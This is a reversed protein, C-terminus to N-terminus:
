DVFLRGFVTNVGGIYIYLSDQPGTFSGDTEGKVEGQRTELVVTDDTIGAAIVQAMDETQRIGLTGSFVCVSGAGMGVLSVSAFGDHVYGMSLVGPVSMSLAYDMDNCQFTFVDCLGAPDTETAVASDGFICGETGFFLTENEPVEHIGSGDSYFRGIESSAWYLRGGNSIWEFIPDSASGTYVSSPLAYGAVFIGKGAADSKTSNVFDSLGSSDEESVESMGRMSLQKTLQDAMSGQDFGLVRCVERADDLNDDFSEDIYIVLEEVPPSGQMAVAAYGDSGNSEVTYEVTSGDWEASASYSNPHFAYAGLEGAVMLALLAVAIVVIIDTRSQRVLM